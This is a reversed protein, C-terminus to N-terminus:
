QTVNVGCCDTNSPTYGAQTKKTAGKNSACYWTNPESESKAYVCYYQQAPAASNSTWYYGADCGRPDCPVKMYLPTGDTDIQTVTNVGANTLPYREVGACNPDDYCMEMATSIQRLDAQRRADRAKSRAGGLSVLVVSSLLGIIAVVVLLEILTFGKKMSFNKLNRGKKIKIDGL